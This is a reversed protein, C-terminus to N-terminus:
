RRTTQAAPSVHTTVVAGNAAAAVKSPIAVAVLVGGATLAMLIVSMVINGPSPNDKLNNIVMVIVIIAVIPAVVYMLFGLFKSWSFLNGMGNVNGFVDGLDANQVSGASAAHAHLVVGLCLAIAAFPAARRILTTM